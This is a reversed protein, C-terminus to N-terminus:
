FKSYRYKMDVDDYKYEIVSMAIKLFVNKFLM